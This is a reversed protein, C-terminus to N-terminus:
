ADGRWIGATEVKFKTASLSASVVSIKTPAQAIWQRINAESEASINAGLVVQVLSPVPVTYVGAGKKYQLIRWEREYSWHKSKTFMAADLMQEQSHVLPNVRPREERYLVPQATAFFADNPDFVLCIGRHSDAYHAWMLIDDAIESICMVGVQSTVTDQYMKRFGDMNGPLRPDFAPDSVRRRAEARRADRGLEPMHRAILQDYYKILETRTGRLEFYPRCDFPDNFSLPSAFFHKSHLISDRVWTASEGSLSRYRCFRIPIPITM